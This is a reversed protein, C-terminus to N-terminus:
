SPAGQSRGLAADLLVANPDFAVADIGKRPRVHRTPRGAHANHKPDVLRLPRKKEEHEVWPPSQPDVLSRAVTILQGSLFAGDLQWDLGGVSITSDARLRRRGRVTLAETLRAEDIHDKPTTQDTFVSLPSKGMLSAHPATHYHKGVFALLRVQVDHLSSLSGLHDLCGERLTRIFREVKGKAQPDRARPHMLTIGLRACAVRLTDGTYTSGNDLYLADPLGHVRLAAVLLALMDSERETAMAKIGVIFRSADDLLIHIRLPVKKEDVTLYPGHCVDGQWLAGPRAAEWRLRQREEAYVAQRAPIRKLGHEAYLRRVTAASVEDQGLRGDTVLTRLILPVSASRHERRIALLLERQAETLAKARGRDSRPMPKLAALGGQQYAYYWRQLTSVGFTRTTDSGPPRFRICSLEILARSLEGRMPSRTLLPGLVQSRFLAVAEAHDKPELRDM